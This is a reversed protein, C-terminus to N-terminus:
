RAAVAPEFTKLVDREYVYAEWARKVHANTWSTMPIPFKRSRGYAAFFTIDHRKAYEALQEGTIPEEPSPAAHATVKAPPVPPPAYAASIKIAKQAAARAALQATIRTAKTPAPSATPPPAQAAPAAAIQPEPANTEIVTAAHTPVNITVAPSSEFDWDADHSEIAREFRPTKPLFKALQRIVTKWAMSEWDTVWPGENPSQSRQRLAQIEPVELIQGLREGCELKAVAYVLEVGGRPQGRQLKHIYELEPTWGWDFIDNACVSRAHVYRVGAERALKVLGQYGAMFHCELAKTDKNWRPILYAEGCSRSLSLGLDSAEVVSAAISSKTCQLLKPTGYCCLVALEIQRAVDIRGACVKALNQQREEENLFLRVDEYKTIATGM